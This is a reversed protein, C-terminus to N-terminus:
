IYKLNKRLNHLTVAVCNPSKGIIKAIEINSLEQHYKLLILQIQHPKLKALESLVIESIQKRYYISEVDEGADLISLIISRRIKKSIM